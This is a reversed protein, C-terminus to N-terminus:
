MGGCHRLVMSVVGFLYPIQTGLILGSVFIMLDGLANM